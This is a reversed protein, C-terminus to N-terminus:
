ERKVSHTNLPIFLIRNKPVKGIKKNARVEQILNEMFTLGAQILQILHHYYHHCGM